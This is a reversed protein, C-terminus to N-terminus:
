MMDINKSIQIIKLFLFILCRDGSTLVLNRFANKEKAQNDLAYARLKEKLLAYAMTKNELQSPSQKMDVYIGTPLHTIRVASLLKNVSQGGPGSNKKFQISLDKADMLIEQAKSDPTVVVM